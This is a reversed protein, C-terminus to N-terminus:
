KKKLVELANKSEDDWPDMQQAITYYEIAKKIDGRMEELLGMDLYYQFCEKNECFSCRRCSELNRMHSLAEVAKDFEGAFILLRGYRSYRIPAEKAKAFYIDHNEYEKFMLNMGKKSYEAAAKHNGLIYECKAMDIYASVQMYEDLKGEVQKYVKLCEKYKRYCDCYIRALRAKTTASEPRASVLRIYAKSSHGSMYEISVMKDAFDQINKTNKGAFDRLYKLAESAKGCHLYADAVNKALYEYGPFLRAAELLVELEHEYDGLMYYVNALNTYPNRLKKEKDKICEISKNLYEKAKDYDGLMSYCYGANNYAYPNTEDLEAAKLYDELAREYDAHEQYVLGRDIRYYATDNNEIQIDAYKVAEEFFKPDDTREYDELCMNMICDAADYHKPNLELTHEYHKRAEDFQKNSYYAQALDYCIADNTPREELMEKFIAIAEDYKKMNSYIDAKTWRYNIRNDMDLAENIYELAKEYNKMDIYVFAIEYSIDSKVEVDSEPNNYVNLRFQEMNHALKLMEDGDYTTMRDKKYQVFTLSDSEVGAERARKLVEDFDEYRKMHMNVLAAYYYPRYYGNYIQTAKYYDDIVDMGYKLNYFAEQRMLYIPYYGEDAEIVEDCVDITKTYEGTKNYCYAIREMVAWRNYGPKEYEKATLLNEIAKDYEKKLIYANGCLAYSLGLRRAKKRYEESGDDVADIIMQKWRELYELSEAEKGMAFLCRGYLNVYEYANKEEDSRGDLYEICRDYQENQFYCWALENAIVSDYKEELQAEYDTIIEENLERMYNVLEQSHINEMLEIVEDKAKKKDGHRGRYRIMAFQLSQDEPNIKSLAEFEEYVGDDDGHDFRVLAYTFRIYYDDPYRKLLREGLEKAKDYDGKNNLMKIYEVDAYPHYVGYQSLADYKEMAGDVDNDYFANRMEFFADIYADPLTESADIATNEFLSFDFFTSGNVSREFFDLFAVAFKESLAEKDELVHFREDILCFVETPFNYNDMIFVLLKERLVDAMELDDCLPSKFLEEYSSEKSRMTIDNYIEEFDKIWLSIEDDEEEKASGMSLAEEYATRLNKFGEPDDEPNCDVLKERYANKIAAEDTTEAIGLIHWVMKKDM